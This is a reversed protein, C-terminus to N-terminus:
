SGSSLHDPLPEGLNYLHIPRKSGRKHDWVLLLRTQRGDRLRVPIRIVNDHAGVPVPAKPLYIEEISNVPVRAGKSGTAYSHSKMFIEFGASLRSPIDRSQRTRPGGKRVVPSGRLIRYVTSKSCGLYLAVRAYSGLAEYLEILDNYTVGREDVMRPRGAPRMSPRRRSM